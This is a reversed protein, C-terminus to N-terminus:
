LRRAKDKRAGVQRPECLRCTRHLEYQISHHSTRLEHAMVVMGWFLVGVGILFVVVVLQSLWIIRTSVAIAIVLMDLMFILISGYVFVLVNHMLHHHNLLDPLLYDLDQLRQAKLPKQSLDMDMLNLLEQNASRVREGISNYRVILGNLMIGCATIMVVPALILDITKTVAETPPM